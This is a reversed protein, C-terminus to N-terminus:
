SHGAGSLIENEERENEEWETVTYQLEKDRSVKEHCYPCLYWKYRGDSSVSKHYEGTFKKCCKSCRM